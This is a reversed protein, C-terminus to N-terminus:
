FYRIVVEEVNNSSSFKEEAFNIKKGCHFEHKYYQRSGLGRFSPLPGRVTEQPQLFDSTNNIHIVSLLYDM